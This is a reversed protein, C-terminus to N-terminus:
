ASTRVLSQIPSRSRKLTAHLHSRIGVTFAELAVRVLISGVKLRGLTPQAGVQGKGVQLIRKGQVGFRRQTGKIEPAARSRSGDAQGSKASADGEEMGRGGNEM